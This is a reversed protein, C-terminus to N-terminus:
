PDTPTDIVGKFNKDQLVGAFAGHVIEPVCVM